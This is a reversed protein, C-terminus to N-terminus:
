ANMGLALSNANLLDWAFVADAWVGKSILPVIEKGDAIMQSITDTLEYSGRESIPTM